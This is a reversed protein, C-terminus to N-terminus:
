CDYWNVKEVPRNDGQFYSPNSGSMITKWEKQTVEYKGIYFDPVTVQYKPKENDYADNGQEKTAGRIYTNGKIFVMNDILRIVVPDEIKLKQTTYFHSYLINGITLFIVSILIIVIIFHKTNNEPLNKM